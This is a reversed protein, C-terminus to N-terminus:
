DKIRKLVQMSEEEKYKKQTDIRSNSIVTSFGNPYRKRLKEINLYLIESLSSNFMNKLVKAIEIIIDAVVKIIEERTDATDLKNLVTKFNLMETLINEKQFSSDMFDYVCDVDYSTFSKKKTIQEYIEDMTYDYYVALSTILYWVIDGLVKRALDYVEKQKELNLNHTYLKKIYDFFEGCEGIVGMYANLKLTDRDKFDNLTRLANKQYWQTTINEGKIIAM